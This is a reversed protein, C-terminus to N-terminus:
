LTTTAKIDDIQSQISRQISSLMSVVDDSARFMPGDAGDNDQWYHKALNALQVDLEMAADWVNDQTEQIEFALNSMASM